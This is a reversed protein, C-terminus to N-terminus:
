INKWLNREFLALLIMISDNLCLIMALIMFNRMVGMRLKSDTRRTTCAWEWKGTVTNASYSMTTPRHDTNPWREAFLDSTLVSSWPSSWTPDCAQGWVLPRVIVHWNERKTQGHMLKGLVERKGFGIRSRPKAQEKESDPVAGAGMDGATRKTANCILHQFAIRLSSVAGRTKKPIQCTLKHQPRHRVLLQTYTLHPESAGRAVSTWALRLCYLYACSQHFADRVTVSYCAVHMLKGFLTKNLRPLVSLRVVRLDRSHGVQELYRGTWCAQMRHGGCAMQCDQSLHQWHGSFLTMWLGQIQM